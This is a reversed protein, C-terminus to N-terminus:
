LSVSSRSHILRLIYGPGAALPWGIRGDRDILVAMPTGRVGLAEAAVRDADLFIQADFGEARIDKPEASTVLVLRPTGPQPREEWDLLYNRIERCSGCHSHWFLFLTEEGVFDTLPVRAGDPAELFVGEPVPEGPLLGFVPERGTVVADVLTKVGLARATYPTAILAPQDVRVAAPTSTVEYAKHVTRKPDLLLDRLGHEEALEPTGDPPGGNVIAITVAGEHDKQWDAMMPMLARCPVCGTDTFVLIVPAGRELLESLTITSGHRDPLAFDPADVGEPLGM